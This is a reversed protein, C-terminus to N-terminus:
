SRSVGISVSMTIRSNQALFFLLSAKSNYDDYGQTLNAVKSNM